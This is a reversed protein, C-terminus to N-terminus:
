IRSINNILNLIKEKSGSISKMILDTNTLIPLKISFLIQRLLDEQFSIRNDGFSHLSHFAVLYDHFIRQNEAYYCILPICGCCIVEFLIGSAPVIALEAELMTELMEPENLAKRHDIRPDSATLEMFADTKRFASGTVVIIKKFEDFKLSVELTKETMGKPDAGGFVILLTEIKKIKRDKKAQVLFAPRLLAYEPGLAFQTYPQASYDQPTIGPTQNIILDAYFTNNHLDDICVLRAGTSKIKRQYESDFDYGDMIVIANPNLQVLFSEEAQISVVNFGNKRFEHELGEPIERCFFTNEYDKKLMHALASCRILHGIGIQHSGDVRIYVGPKVEM